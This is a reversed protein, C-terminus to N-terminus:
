CHLFKDRKGIM